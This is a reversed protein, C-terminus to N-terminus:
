SFSATPCLCIETAEGCTEVISVRTICLNMGTIRIYDTDADINVNLEMYATSLQITQVHSSSSERVKTIVGESVNVPPEATV